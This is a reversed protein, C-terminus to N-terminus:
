SADEVEDDTSPGDIVQRLKMELIQVAFAVDQQEQRSWAVTTDDDKWKTIVVVSEIHDADELTQALLIKPTLKTGPLRVIAM